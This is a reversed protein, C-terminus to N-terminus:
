WMITKNFFVFLSFLYLILGFFGVQLLVSLYYNDVFIQSINKAYSSSTAGGCFGIGNGLFVNYERVLQAWLAFRGFLSESRFFVAEIYSIILSSLALIYFQGLIRLANKPRGLEMIVIGVLPLLIGQRTISTYMSILSFIFAIFAFARSVQGVLIVKTFVAYCLLATVGTFLSFEFNTLSLGLARVRGENFERIQTGYPLGLAILKQTGLRLQIIGALSNAINIWFVVKVFNSIYISNKITSAVLAFVVPLLLSKIAILKVIFPTANTQPILYGYLCIILLLFISFSNVEFVINQADRALKALGAALCLIQFAISWTGVDQTKLILLLPLSFFPALLFLPFLFNAYVIIMPILSFMILLIPALKM